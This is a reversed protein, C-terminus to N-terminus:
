GGVLIAGAGLAQERALGGAPQVVVEVPVTALQGVWEEQAWGEAWGVQVVVAVGMLVQVVRVVVRLVVVLVVLVVLM